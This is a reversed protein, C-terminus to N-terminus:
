KLGNAKEIASSEATDAFDGKKVFKVVIVRNPAISPFRSDEICLVNTHPNMALKLTAMESNKSKLLDFIFTASPYFGGIMPMIKQAATDPDPEAGNCFTKVAEKDFVADPGRLHLDLSWITVTGDPNTKQPISLHANEAPIKLLSSPAFKSTDIKNQSGDGHVLRMMGGLDAYEKPINTIPEGLKTKPGFGKKVADPDFQVFYDRILRKLPRECLGFTAAIQQETMQPRMM